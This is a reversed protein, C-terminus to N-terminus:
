PDVRPQLARGITHVAAVGSIPRQRLTPSVRLVRGGPLRAKALAVVIADQATNGREWAVPDGTILISFAVLHGNVSTVYGSLGTAINLTGTKAHANGEAASHRMRTSLTGDKGAVALSGFFAGYDSRQSMAGLLRVITRPALRNGYGLGSGDEITWLSGSDDISELTAASRRSGAATSGVDETERGLDKLLTEAVHNDSQKNMRALLVGLKASRQQQLLMANEPVSAVGPTGRVNIGAKILAKTFLTATHKAPEGVRENNHWGQNVSLASLPGCAAELGPKWTAVTREHDLWGEDSLVRGAVIEIGQARVSNVFTELTATTFGFERSQFRRTSLSPDGGGRLYLDGRLVGDIVRTNSMLLQTTFRYDSGWEILAAASTVLKMNSAPVVAVTANREYVLRSADLDWVFLGAGSPPIEQKVLIADIREAITDARADTTPLFPTALCCALALVISLHRVAHPHRPGPRPPSAIM